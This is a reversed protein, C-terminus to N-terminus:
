QVAYRARVVVMESRQRRRLPHARWAVTPARRHGAARLLLAVGASPWCVNKRAKESDFRDWSWRGVVGDKGGAVKQM